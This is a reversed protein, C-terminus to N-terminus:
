PFTPHFLQEGEVGKFRMNRFVDMDIDKGLLFHKRDAYWLTVKDGDCTLDGYLAIDAIRVPGHGWRIGNNDMLLMPESFEIPQNAGPVFRGHVAFLPRRHQCTDYPRWPGFHGDHNHIILLYEGSGKPGIEWLPCPSRPQLIPNEGDSYLLRQTPGWSAGRDNSLAYFPSGASTRFVVMLRGDPLEVVSPEQALFYRPNVAQRAVLGKLGANDWNFKIDKPLPNDDLNDIYYMDVSSEAMSWDWYERPKSKTLSWWHTCGGIYRGEKLRIPPAFPTWAAPVAPDDNDIEACKPYAIVTENELTEGDDDSTYIVFEGNEVPDQVGTSRNIFFYVRGQANRLPFGGCIRRKGTKPDHDGGLLLRPKSWTKGGDTSEASVYRTDPHGEATGQIWFAKLKDNCRLIKVGENEGDHLQAEEPAPIYIEYDPCTRRRETERTFM